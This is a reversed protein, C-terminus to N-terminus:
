TAFVEKARTVAQRKANALGDFRGLPRGNAYGLWRWTRENERMVVVFVPKTGVKITTCCWGNDSLGWSVRPM